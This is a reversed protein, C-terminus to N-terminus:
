YFLRPGYTRPQKQYWWGYESYLFSNQYHNIAFKVYEVMNTPLNTIDFWSLDDCKDPEHNTIEGAYNTAVM